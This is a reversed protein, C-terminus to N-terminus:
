TEKTMYFRHFLAKKFGVKEAKEIKFGCWKLWDKSLKNEYSVWGELMKYDELMKKIYKKSQRILKFKVDKVKPTGLLWALGIDSICSKSAVGCVFIPTNDKLLTWSKSSMYFSYDLGETNNKGTIDYIEKIDEFRLRTKIYCIHEYTTKTIVINDKQLM